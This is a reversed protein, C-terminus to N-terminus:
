FTFIYVCTVYPPTTLRAVRSSLPGGWRGRWRGLAEGVGLQRRAAAAGVPEGGGAVGGGWPAGRRGRLQRGSPSEEVGASGGQAARRRGRPGLPM